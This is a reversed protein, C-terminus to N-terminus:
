FEFYAVDAVKSVVRYINAVLQNGIERNLIGYFKKSVTLRQSHSYQMKGLKSPKQTKKQSEGSVFALDSYFNIQTCGPGALPSILIYMTGTVPLIFTRFSSSETYDLGFNSTYALHWCILEHIELYQM